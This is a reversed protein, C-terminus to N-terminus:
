VILNKQALAVAMKDAATDGAGLVMGLVHYTCM